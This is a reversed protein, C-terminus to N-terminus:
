DDDSDYNTDETETYAKAKGDVQLRTPPKRSRAPYRTNESMADGERYINNTDISQGYTDDNNNEDTPITDPWSTEETSRTDIEEVGEDGLRAPLLSNFHRIKASSTGNIPMIEYTWGNGIIKVIEHIDSNRPAMKKGGLKGRESDSLKYRVFQGLAYPITVNGENNKSCRKRQAGRIGAKAREIAIKMTKQKQLLVKKALALPDDITRISTDVSEDTCIDEPNRTNFGFAVLVPPFGTASNISTNHSFQIKGIAEPWIEIDNNCLCRVQNILQNQREAQGQSEAHSPAGMRHEIGVSQCMAQFVESTFHSGRDSTLIEPFTTYACVWKDIIAQAATLGTDNICPVFILYRSLIDQIQLVYRFNHTTAQPFPGLFDTQLRKFPADPIDTEQMPAKDGRNRHKNKGCKDCSSVYQQVDTRM